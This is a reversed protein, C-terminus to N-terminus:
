GRAGVRRGRDDALWALAAALVAPYNRATLRTKGRLGRSAMVCLRGASLHHAGASTYGIFPVMAVVARWQGGQM